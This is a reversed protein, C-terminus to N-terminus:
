RSVCTSRKASRAATASDFGKSISLPSVDIAGTPLGSTPDVPTTISLSLSSTAITGTLPGLVIDGDIPGQNAGILRLYMQADAAPTVVLLLFACLPLIRRIM